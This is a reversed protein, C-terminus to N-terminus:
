INTPRTTPTRSREKSQRSPGGSKLGPTRPPGTISVKPDPMIFDLSMFATRRLSVCGVLENQEDFKELGEEAAKDGLIGEASRRQRVNENWQEIIREIEKIGSTGRDLGFDEWLWGTLLGLIADTWAHWGTPSYNRECAANISSLLSRYETETIWPAMIEPYIDSFQPYLDGCTM